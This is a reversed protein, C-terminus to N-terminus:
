NGWHWGLKEASDIIALENESLGGSIYRSPRDKYKASIARAQAVIDSARVIPKEERAPERVQSGTVTPSAGKKYQEVLARAEEPTAARGIVKGGVTVDSGGYKAVGGSLGLIDRLKGEIKNRDDETMTSYESSTVFKGMLERYQAEPDKSKLKNHADMAAKAPDKENQFVNKALWDISQVDSPMRAGAASREAANLRANAQKDAVFSRYDANLEKAQATYGLQEAADREALLKDEVSRKSMNLLGSYQSNLQAKVEPDETSDIAKKLAPINKSLESIDSDANMGLSVNHIETGAKLAAERARQEDEIKSAKARGEEAIRSDNSLHNTFEALMKQRNLALENEHATLEEKAKADAEKKMTEAANNAGGSVFGSLAAELIGAM